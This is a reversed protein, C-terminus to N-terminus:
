SARCERGCSPDIGLTLLLVFLVITQGGIWVRDNGPVHCAGPHCSLPPLIIFVSRRAADYAALGPYRPVRVLGRPRPLPEVLGWDRPSSPPSHSQAGAIIKGGHDQGRGAVVGSLSGPVIDM